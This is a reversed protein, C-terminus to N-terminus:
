VMQNPTYFNYSTRLFGLWVIPVVFTPRKKVISIKNQTCVVKGSCQEQKRQYTSLGLYM